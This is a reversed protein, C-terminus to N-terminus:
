KAWAEQKKIEQEIYEKVEKQVPRGCEPCFNSILLIMSHCGPCPMENPILECGCFSCFRKGYISFKCNPCFKGESM